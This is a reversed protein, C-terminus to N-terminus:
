LEGREITERFLQEYGDVMRSSSFREEVGSRCRHSAITRLKGIAAAMEDLSEAVFGDIGDRIIEPVSGRNFAIVPTGCALAEVMALGFPEEWLVPFLLCRAKKLVDMKQATDVEGIYRVRAGDIRPKVRTEYFLRDVPDVKAAIVLPLETKEAVAIAELVGKVPTIRGLFLLYDEKATEFPFDEVPIGNYIMRSYPFFPVFSQQRKSIFVATHHKLSEATRYYDIHEPVDTINHFVSVVPVSFFDLLQVPADDVMRRLVIPEYHINILDFEQQRSLVMLLQRAEWQRNEAIRERTPYPSSEIRRIREGEVASGGACFITIHHGREALGRALEYAEREVGGYREPPVTVMLPAVIAINM